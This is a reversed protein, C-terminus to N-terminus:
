TLMRTRQYRNAESAAERAGRPGKRRRGERREELRVGPKEKEQEGERGGTERGGKRGDKEAEMGGERERARATEGVKPLDNFKSRSVDASVEGCFANGDPCCRHM